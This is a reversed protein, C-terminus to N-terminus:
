AFQIVLGETTVGVVRRRMVATRSNRAAAAEIARGNREAVARVRLM